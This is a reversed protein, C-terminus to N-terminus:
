AALVRFIHKKTKAFILPNLWIILTCMKLLWIDVASAGNKRFFYIRSIAYHMASFTACDRIIDRSRATGSTGGGFHIIEPGDILIRKKGAKFLQYELDTEECYLYFRNDFKAYEDNKLFLAAGIIDDVEGLRKAPSTEPPNRPIPKGFLINMLALKTFGYASHIHNHLTDRLEPFESWSHGVNGERDLLNCGLAGLNEAEGNAEWYDLLPKVANNLLVTDSNLYFAYRGRAVALGRNNAKGFGLNANNELLRVRPFDQKVMEISGDKSGNDSVIIEFCFGASKEYISALCGKLFERTNYNVIIISVDVKDM